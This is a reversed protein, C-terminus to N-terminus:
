LNDEVLFEGISSNWTYPDDTIVKAQIEWDGSENLDDTIARYYIKGDTGDTVFTATKIVSIGSPKKLIIQKTIVASIDMVANDQDKLTIIFQTGIDGVHIEASM